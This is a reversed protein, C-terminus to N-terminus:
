WKWSNRFTQSLTCDCLKPNTPVFSNISQSDCQSSIAEFIQTFFCQVNAIKGIAWGMKHNRYIPLTWNVALCLGRVFYLSWFCVSICQQFPTPTQIHTDEKTGSKWRWFKAWPRFASAIYDLRVVWQFMSCQQETMFINDQNMTPIVFTVDVLDIVNFHIKYRNILRYFFSIYSIMRRFPCISRDFCLFCRLIWYSNSNSEITKVLM